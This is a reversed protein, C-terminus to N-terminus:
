VLASRLVLRGDVWALWHATVAMFAELNHHSWIDSTFAVRGVAHKLEEILRAYEKKFLKELEQAIKTRHPLDGDELQIGIYLIL